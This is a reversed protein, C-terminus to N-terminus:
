DTAGGILELAVELAAAQRQEPTADIEQAGPLLIGKAAEAHADTPYWVYVMLSAVETTSPDGNDALRKSDTWEFAVRGIGFGGSPNQIAPLTPADPSKQAMPIVVCNLILM